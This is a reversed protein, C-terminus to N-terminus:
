ASGNLYSVFDSTLDKMRYNTAFSCSWLQLSYQKGVFLSSVLSSCSVFCVLLQSVFTEPLCVLFFKIFICVTLYIVAEGMVPLPFKQWQM